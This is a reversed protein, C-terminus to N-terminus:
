SVSIKKIKALIKKVLNKNMKSSNKLTEEDEKAATEIELIQQRLKLHEAKLDDLEQSLESSKNEENRLQIYVKEIETTDKQTQNSDAIDEDNSAVEMFKYALERHLDCGIRKEKLEIEQEKIKEDKATLKEELNAVITLYSQLTDKQSDITLRNTEQQALLVEKEQKLSQVAASMQDKLTTTKSLKEQLLKQTKAKGEADKMQKRLSEFEKLIKKKENGEKDLEKKLGNVVNIISESKEAKLSKESNEAPPCKSYGNNSSTTQGNSHAKVSADNLKDNETELAIDQDGNPIHKTTCSPEKIYKRKELEEKNEEGELEILSDLKKIPEPNNTYLNGDDGNQIAQFHNMIMTKVKQYEQSREVRVFIETLTHNIFHALDQIKILTTDEMLQALMSNKTHYCTLSTPVNRGNNSPIDLIFQTKHIKGNIDGDNNKINLNLDKGIQVINEVFIHYTPTSMEFYYQRDNDKPTVKFEKNMKKLKDKIKKQVNLAYNNMRVNTIKIADDNKPEIHMKELNMLIATETGKEHSKEEVSNRHKICVFTSTSGEQDIEQQTVGACASHWYAECPPCVVGCDKEKVFISCKPCYGNPKNVFYEKVKSLGIKKRPTVNASPQLSKSKTLQKDSCNDFIKSVQTGTAEKKSHVLIDGKEIADEYDVFAAESIDSEIKDLSKKKIRSSLRRDIPPEVEM